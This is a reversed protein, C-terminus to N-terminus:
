EDGQKPRVSDVAIFTSYLGILVLAITLIQNYPAEPSVNIETVQPLVVTGNALQFGSTTVSSVIPTSLTTLGIFVFLVGGITTFAANKRDYGFFIFVGSILLFLVYFSFDMIFVNNKM